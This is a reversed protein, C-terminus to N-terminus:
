EKITPLLLYNTREAFRRAVALADALTACPTRGLGETRRGFNDTVAWTYGSTALEFGAGVVSTYLSATRGDAHRYYRYPIVRITRSAM